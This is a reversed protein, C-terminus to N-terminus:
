LYILGSFCFLLPVRAVLGVKALNAKIAINNLSIESKM